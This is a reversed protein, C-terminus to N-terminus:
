PIKLLHLMLAKSNPGVRMCVESSLGQSYVQAYALYGIYTFMQSLDYLLCKWILLLLLLLLLLPPM